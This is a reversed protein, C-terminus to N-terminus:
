KQGLELAAQVIQHVRKSQEEPMVKVIDILATQYSSLKDGNQAVPEKKEGWGLLWLPSVALANAFSELKSLTLDVLGSEVKAISSRDSYGTLDALTQQSMGIEERRRKIKAYLDM